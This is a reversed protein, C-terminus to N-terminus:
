LGTKEEKRIEVRKEEEKKKTGEYGTQSHVRINREGKGATRPEGMNGSGKM